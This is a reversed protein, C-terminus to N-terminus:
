NSDNGLVGDKLGLAREIKRIMERSPKRLGNLILSIYSESVELRAALDAQHLSQRALEMRVRTLNM